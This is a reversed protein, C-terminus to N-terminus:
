HYGEVIPFMSIFWKPLIFFLVPSSFVGCVFRCIQFCLPIDVPAAHGRPSKWTFRNSIIKCGDRSPATFLFFERRSGGTFYYFLLQPFSQSPQLHKHLFGHLPQQCTHDGRGWSALVPAGHGRGPWVAPQACLDSTPPFPTGMRLEPTGAKQARFALPIHSDWEGQVAMGVHRTSELPGRWWGCNSM